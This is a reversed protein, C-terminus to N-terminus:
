LPIDMNLEDVTVQKGGRGQGQEGNKEPAVKTVLRIILIISLIFVLLADGILILYRIDQYFAKPAVPDVPSAITYIDDAVEIPSGTTAGATNDPTAVTTEDTTQLTNVSASNAPVAAASASPSVALDASAQYQGGKYAGFGAVGFVALAFLAIISSRARSSLSGQM